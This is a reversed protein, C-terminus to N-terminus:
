KKVPKKKKKARNEKWKTFQEPTLIAKMEAEMKAKRAMRKKRMEVKELERKLLLAKMKKQQDVTLIFEKTMKQTKMEAKQEPTKSKSKGDQAFVNGTSFIVAVLLILIKKM